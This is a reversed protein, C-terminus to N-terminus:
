HYSNYFMIFVVIIIIIIPFSIFIIIVIIRLSYYTVVTIYICTNYRAALWAAPHQSGRDTYEPHVWVVAGSRVSTSEMLTDPDDPNARAWALVANDKPAARPDPILRARSLYTWAVTWDPLGSRSICWMVEHRDDSFVPYTPSGEPPGIAAGVVARRFVDFLIRLQANVELLQDGQFFVETPAAAFLSDLGARYIYVYM